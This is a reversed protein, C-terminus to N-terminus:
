TSELFAIAAAEAKSLDDGFDLAGQASMGGGRQLPKPPSKMGRGSARNQFKKEESQHSRKALEMVSANPNVRLGELIDRQDAWKYKGQAQAIEGKIEVEAQTILAEQRWKAAEGLQGTVERLHRELTHVKQELPDVYEDAPASHPQQQTQMNQMQSYAWKGYEELQQARQNSANLQGEAAEARSRADRLQERSERFRDYPVPNPSGDEGLEPEIDSSLANELEDSDAQTATEPSEGTDGYESM